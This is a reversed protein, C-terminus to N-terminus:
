FNILQNAGTYPIFGTVNPIEPKNKIYSDKFPNTENWDSKQDELNPTWDSGVYGTELKFWDIEIVSGVPISPVYGRVTVNGDNPVSFTVSRRAFETPSSPSAGTIPTGNVFSYWSIAMPTKVFITLTYVGAKLKSFVR